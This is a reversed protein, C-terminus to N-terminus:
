YIYGRKKLADFINFIKNYDYDSSNNKKNGEKGDKKDLNNKLRKCDSQTRKNELKQEVLLKKNENNNIINIYNNNINNNVKKYTTKFAKNFEPRKKRKHLIDILNLQSTSSIQIKNKYKTKSNIKPLNENNKSNSDQQVLKYNKSFSTKYYEEINDNKNERKKYKNFINENKKIKGSEIPPPIIFNPKLRFQDKIDALSRNRKILSLRNNNEFLNSKTYKLQKILKTNNNSILVFNIKSYIEKEKEKYKKLMIQTLCFKIITLMKMKISDNIMDAEGSSNYFYNLLQLDKQNFSQPNVKKIYRIKDETLRMIRFEPEINNDEYDHNLDAGKYFYEKVKPSKAVEQLVLKVNNSIHLQEERVKQNTIYDELHFLLNLFVNIKEAIIKNTTM